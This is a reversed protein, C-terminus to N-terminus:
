SRAWHGRRCRFRVRDTGANESTWTWGRLVATGTVTAQAREVPGQWVISGKPVISCDVDWNRDAVVEFILATGAEVYVLYREDSVSSVFGGNDAGDAFGAPKDAIDGWSVQGDALVAPIGQLLSWLPKLINGPLFGQKNTAVLNGARQQKGVGAGVADKGDVTEANVGAAVSVEDGAQATVPASGLLGVLLALAMGSAMVRRVRHIGPHEGKMVVLLAIVPGLYPRLRSGSM